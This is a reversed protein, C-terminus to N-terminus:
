EVLPQELEFPAGVDWSLALDFLVVLTTIDAALSQTDEWPLTWPSRDPHQTAYSQIGRLFGSVTSLSPRLSHPPGPDKTKLDALVFSLLPPVLTQLGRHLLARTSYVDGRGHRHQRWVDRQLFWAASRVTLRTWTMAVAETLAVISYYAAAPVVVVEGAQQTFQTLGLAVEAM